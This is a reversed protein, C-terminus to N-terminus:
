VAFTSQTYLSDETNTSRMNACKGTQQFKNIVEFNIHATNKCANMPMHFAAFHQTVLPSMELPPQVRHTVSQKQTKTRVSYVVAKTPSRNLAVNKM